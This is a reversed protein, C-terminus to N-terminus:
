IYSVTKFPKGDKLYVRPVRRSVACIMEYNITGCLAALKEVPLNKGFLLVEMEEEAEPIDTVDVIMQDMCVRGIIPAKKGAIMVYGKSSLMRSYGDAYGAAVTAVVMDRKATFTRGYSVTCGKKLPKIMSIVSKLEMAPILDAEFKLGDAPTLGYLIIGARSVDMKKDSHILIAASNRCHRFKFKYGENELINVAKSFLSYQEATFEESEDAVSFHTFIGEFELNELALAKRVECLGSLSSDRCDFGLRGMGTDLKLHCKIKVGAGRAAANLAKAFSLSYVTQSIDNEYLDATHLAPTYGLILIPKTIGFHRLELAEDLGSVAFGDAGAEQLAPAVVSAGHGYADAKVVAFVQGSTEKILNFNHILADIDIEAWTRRVLEM